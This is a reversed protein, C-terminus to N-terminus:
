VYSGDEKKILDKIQSELKRKKELVEEDSLATFQNIQINQTVDRRESSEERAEKNAMIGYLIKEKNTDLSQSMQYFQEDRELRVRKNFCPVKSLENIYHLRYRDIDKAYNEEFKELVEHTIDLDFKHKLEYLLTHHNKYEALQRCAYDKAPGIIKYKLPIPFSQPNIIREKNILNTYRRPM